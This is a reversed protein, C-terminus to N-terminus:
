SIAPSSRKREVEFASSAWSMLPQFGGDIWEWRQVGWEEGLVEDHRLKKPRFSIVSLNSALATTEATKDVGEAGGSVIITDPYKAAIGRVYSAVHELDAGERSGRDRGERRDPVRFVRSHDASERFQEASGMCVGIGKPPPRLGQLTYAGSPAGDMDPLDGRMFRPTAAWRCDSRRGPTVVGLRLVSLM